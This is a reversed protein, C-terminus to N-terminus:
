TGVGGPDDAPLGGAPCVNGSLLLLLLGFIIIKVLRM